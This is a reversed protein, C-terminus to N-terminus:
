SSESGNLLPVPWRMAKTEGLNKRVRINEGRAEDSEQSDFIPWNTGLNEAISLIPGLLNLLREGPIVSSFQLRRLSFNVETTKNENNIMAM